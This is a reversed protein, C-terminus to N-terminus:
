LSGGVLFVGDEIVKEDDLYLTPKLIIGDMHCEAKNIGGFSTNTGFAIHVTGYVKEDELITGNLIAAQNTGIGLECLTGNIENKLLIGLNESRDGTVSRLKGDSIVMHLPSDLKGIGVMSGDIIMEGNSGDELPAIYAEGSPLNGCQGAKHYIGPSPVGNRGDLRITLITGEKEIRALKAKTLMETVAATLREVKCYDATMAGKTFMEKTIGPMTAIRAGMKAAEMRANTHTLSQATPAIVVDAAKMADAVAKPPEEGSVSREAMVMLLNECGLNGAAEYIAEGIEKRSDDTIILVEEGSKVALCSTLVEEAIKVLNSM